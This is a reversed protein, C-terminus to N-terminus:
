MCINIYSNEISSKFTLVMRRLYLLWILIQNCVCLTIGTLSFLENDACIIQQHCLYDKEKQLFPRIKIKASLWRYRPIPRTVKKYRLFSLFLDYNAGVFWVFWIWFRRRCILYLNSEYCKKCRLFHFSWFKRRCIRCIFDLIQGSILGLFKLGLFWWIIIELIGGWVSFPALCFEVQVLMLRERM